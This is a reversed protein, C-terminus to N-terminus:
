TSWPPRGEKRGTAKAIHVGGVSKLGFTLGAVDHSYGHYSIAVMIDKSFAREFGHDSLAHPHSDFSWLVMLDTVKMIRARLEPAFDRPPAAAAVVEPTVKTGIGVPVM